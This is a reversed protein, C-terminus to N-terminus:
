SQSSASPIIARAVRSSSSEAGDVVGELAVETARFTLGLKSEDVKSGGVVGGFFATRLDIRGSSSAMKPGLRMGREGCFEGERLLM